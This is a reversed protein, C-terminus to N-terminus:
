GYSKTKIIEVIATSKYAEKEVNSGKPSFDQNLRTHMNKASGVYITNQTTDIFRYCGAGKYEITVGYM